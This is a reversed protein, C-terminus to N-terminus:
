FDGLIREARDLDTGDKMGELVSSDYQPLSEPVFLGGDEASERRLPRRRPSM